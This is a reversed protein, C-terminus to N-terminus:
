RRCEVDVLRAQCEVLRASGRRAMARLRPHSGSGIPRPLEPGHPKLEVSSRSPRAVGHSTRAGSRTRTLGVQGGVGTPSSGLQLLAGLGDRDDADRSGGLPSTVTGRAHSPANATGSPQGDVGFCSSGDRICHPRGSLPAKGVAIPIPVKSGTWNFVRPRRDQSAELLGHGRASITAISPPETPRTPESELQARL